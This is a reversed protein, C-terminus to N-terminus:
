FVNMGWCGSPLPLSNKFGRSILSCETNMWRWVPPLSYWGWKVGCDLFRTAEVSEDKVFSTGSVPYNVGM